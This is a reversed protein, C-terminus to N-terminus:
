RLDDSAAPQLTKSSGHVILNRPDDLRLCKSENTKSSGPRDPRDKEKVSSYSLLILRSRSADRAKDFEVTFGINRLATAARRLRSTMANAAKPWDRPLPDTTFRRLDELLQSATGEWSWPGHGAMRVLAAAVCDDETTAASVDRQAGTYAELFDGPRWDEGGGIRLAGGADHCMGLEAAAMFLAFDALRPPEPMDVQGAHAHAQSILDLLAGLIRPHAADFSEWLAREPRRDKPELRHLTIPLCRDQLDTQRALDPIGNIIVPRAAEILLEDSDSHLERTRFGSGLALGCLADSLWADIGSLNNLVLAHSNRATIYLDRESQPKSSLLVKSPDVLRRLCSSVVSKGSGAEGSIAAVPYQGPAGLAATAWAVCLIFGAKDTNLFPRLEAISGGQAPTPLARLGAPRLFRVPVQDADRVDWGFGDPDVRVVKRTADGLDLYLAGDHRAVRVFAERELGDHVARASLVALVERFADAKLVLKRQTWCVGQILEAAAKSRLRMTQMRGAQKISVYGEGEPDHWLDAGAQDLLDLATRAPHATAKAEGNPVEVTKKKTMTDGLGM